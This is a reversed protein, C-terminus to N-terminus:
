DADLITVYGAAGSSLIAVYNGPEFHYDIMSNAPAVASSTTAVVTSTGFEVFQPITGTFITIRRGTIAATRTSVAGTALTQFKAVDSANYLQHYRSM